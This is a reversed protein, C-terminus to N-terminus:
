IKKHIDIEIISLNGKANADDRAVGDDLKKGGIEAHKNVEAIYTSGKLKIKVKKGKTRPIVITYYGLTTKTTIDAILKGDVYIELPYARSRFNNLKIDIEDIFEAKALTYEIWASQMKGDNVWDTLENDDFSGKVKDQNAGAVASKIPLTIRKIKLPSESLGEGRDLNSPLNNKSSKVFVGNNSVIPEVSWSLEDSLLGNAHASLRVNGTKNFITRLLVRNIGAEVPLSESLIYNNSGQAIGGRWEMPGDFKFDIMNTATPCRNGDKDVVEVDVMVMDNGDAFLGNKGHQYNLKVRYPEGATKIVKENLVKGSADYSVAKLTGKQYKVASFTYLFHSSREGEGIKNDNIFLDVKEGASVVFVDKITGEKYNWHGVIHLGSPDSEVWGNWMVQHAYFADKPIRMPDVEGSRRYNEKGRYHTNSDSFIINLGGSSVRAGTGPRVKYYEYWRHVAEAAFSDQNRNYSSADNGKYLPGEGNKHYPYTFEDWYKRLAEDRMYETAIMPHRASKNIYLMEGGYEALKSDLMERSGIARDGHPDYQDRIAIMEAMHAESISENGCEYMLVSPNNRYYIIADRMLETRLEWRRGTVDREADGAPLMQMLGVRDCSEVDQRWPTVHMWRVLNANSEVMLKNSFDSLWPAVSLGVAPWENSTRQAYGKMMLVQDNLYVMGNRFATKRFGTKTEVVDMVNNPNTIKSTITYLYGYGWNWFNVNQLVDKAQLVKTEGAAITYIQEFEKVLVNKADRVEVIYKGSQAANTENKVESEVFLDLKRKKIDINKAYTYVGTTGLNSYLPLTQYVSPKFHIWVNKPMGGYNANFNKDNWQYTSNTAKERYSWSNDTRVAIINEGKRNLVKSIDLGFAMVGNEHIGVYEGNVYIQAGHRVGEFELFVKELPVNTPLALRKRYWVVNTSHLHIPKAFAEDENWAYPLTVQKWTSDNFAVDQAKDIDGVHIRWEANLSYVKSDQANSYYTIFLLFLFILYKPKM